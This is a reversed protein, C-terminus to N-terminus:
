VQKFVCTCVGFEFSVSCDPVDAQSVTSSASNTCQLTDHAALAIAAM